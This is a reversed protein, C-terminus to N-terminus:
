FKSIDYSPTCLREGYSELIAQSHAARTLVDEANLNTPQEVQESVFLARFSRHLSRVESVIKPATEQWSVCDGKRELPLPVVGQQQTIEALVPSLRDHYQRWLANVIAIKTIALRDVRQRLRTPFRNIETEPYRAALRELSAAAALLEIYDGGLENLYRNAADMGGMTEWLQEAFPPHTVYLRETEPLVEPARTQDSPETAFAVSSHIELTTKPVLSAIERLQAARTESQVWASFHVSGRETWIQPAEQVDAGVSHIAERLSLEAEQTQWENRDTKSVQLPMHGNALGSTEMSVVRSAPGPLPRLEFAVERIEIERGAQTMVTKAITHWDSRRVTLSATKIEGTERPSTSITLTNAGEQIADHKELLGDHWSAFQIANLPDAWDVTPLIPLNDPQSAVSRRGNEQLIERQLVLGAHRIEVKQYVLMESGHKDSDSSNLAHRLIEAANVVAPEGSPPLLIRPSYMLVAIIALANAVIWTPRRAALGRLIRMLVILRSDPEVAEMQLRREFRNWAAPPPLSKPLIVRNRYEMFAYIGRNLREYVARCEWCGAMHRELEASDRRGLEREIHLMLVSPDPHTWPKTRKRKSM